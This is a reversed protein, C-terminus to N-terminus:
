EEPPRRSGITPTTLASCYSTIALRSVFSYPTVASISGAPHVAARQTPSPSPDRNIDPRVYLVDPGCGYWTECCFCDNSM